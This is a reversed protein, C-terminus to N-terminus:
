RRGSLEGRRERELMKDFERQAQKKAYSKEEDESSFNFSTGERAGQSTREDARKRDWVSTQGTSSQGQAAGSPRAQSRIRDWASGQVSQQSIATKQESPAVPSADDFLDPEDDRSTAQTREPPSSQAVPWASQTEQTSQETSAWPSSQEQADPLESGGEQGSRQGGQRQRQQARTNLAENYERLRPDTKTGALFTSVAYSLFFISVAVKCGAYWAIFRLGHWSRQALEKPIQASAFPFKNPDFKDAKPTWFPFGYKAHTGRYLAYASALVVPTDWARIVLFKAYYQSLADKEPQTLGRGVFASSAMVNSAVKQKFDQQTNGFFRAWFPLQPLEDYNIGLQDINRQAVEAPINQNLSAMTHFLWYPPIFSVCPQGITHDPIKARFIPFETHAENSPTAQERETCHLSTQNLVGTSTM